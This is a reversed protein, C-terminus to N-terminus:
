QVPRPLTKWPDAFHGVTEIEVNAPKGNVEKVERIYENQVLDRTQPDIEVPGRPSDPNKWHSLFEMTKDPDMQGKLAIVADYIAKMGDWGAVAFLTPAFHPGYEKEWAAVFAKNAPRDGVPSYHLMTIAGLAAKGMNPLEEDSTIDGPGIIKIKSGAIGIDSFAKMFATAQPGGPNFHFVADPNADKAKQLFPLYDSTNLPVRVSGVIQGGGETFGRTFGAEADHGPAFDSVVTYVKKIGNKAAWQGLPYSSQWLTWGTRIVYPSQQTVASGGATMVVFPIKADKTLAGVAMANPTWQGGTLIQVKDQLILERALRKAVDPNPGTDDRRVLEVAVGQPLDKAHLKTYLNIGKDIEDALAADRGSFTLILGVKVTEASVPAALAAWALGFLAVGLVGLRAGFSATRVKM